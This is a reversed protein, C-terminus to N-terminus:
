VTKVKNSFEYLTIAVANSVNLSEVKNSISLKILHDCRKSTLDRLGYGESGFIFLTKASFKASNLSEKASGDLGYCWYGEEKLEKITRDLNTVRILPVAELAGCATKAIVAEESPSHRKTIILAAVNFAACTRLIAGINHPDTVQDLMLIAGSLDIDYISLIPLPLLRVAIGQHTTEGIIKSEIISKDVITSKINKPLQNELNEYTSKTIIVELCTRNKNNLAALCPHKGYIWYSQNNQQQNNM